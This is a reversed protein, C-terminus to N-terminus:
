FLREWRFYCKISMVSDAPHARMKNFLTAHSARSSVRQWAKISAPM